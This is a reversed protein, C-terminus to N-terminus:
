FKYFLRLRATHDTPELNVGAVTEDDYLSATYEAGVGVHDTMMLELGGGVVWGERGVEGLGATLDLDSWEYGLLVYILADERPVWGARGGILYSFESSAIETGALAHSADDIEVRALVGLLLGPAVMKDYGIGFHGSWASDGLTALTGGGVAGLEVNSFTLGAGVEVYFGSWVMMPSLSEDLTQLAAAPPVANKDAASAPLSACVLAAMLALLKM